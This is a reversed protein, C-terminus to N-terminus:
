TKDISDELASCIFKVDEESLRTHFPLFTLLPAITETIPLQSIRKGLYAHYIEQMHHAHWLGLTIGYREYLPLILRDREPLLVAYHTLVTEDDVDQLTILRRDRLGSLCEDYVDKLRKRRAFIEESRKLNELAIVANLASLKFNAGFEEIISPQSFSVGQHAITAVRHLLGEDHSTMLAGGLGTINKSVALSFVTASHRGLNLVGPRLGNQRSGVALSADQIVPIDKGAGETLDYFPALDVFRNLHTLVIARTENTIARAVEEPDMCWSKEDVDVFRPIGGAAMIANPVGVYNLSSMIVEGGAVGLATMLAWLAGTASAAGVAHMPLSDINRDKMMRQALPHRIGEDEGLYQLFNQYLRQMPGGATPRFFIEPLSEQTLLDILASVEGAGENAGGQWSRLLEDILERTRGRGPDIDPHILTYAKPM